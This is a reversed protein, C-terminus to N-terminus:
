LKQLSAAVSPCLSNSYTVLWGENVAKEESGANSNAKLIKLGSWAHSHLHKNEFDFAVVLPLIM